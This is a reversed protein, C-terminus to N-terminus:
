GPCHCVNNSSPDDTACQYPNTFSYRFGLDIENSDDTKYNGFFGHLCGNFSEIDSSAGYLYNGFTDVKYTEGYYWYYRM